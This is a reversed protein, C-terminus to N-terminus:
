ADGIPTGGQLQAALRTFEDNSRLRDEVSRALADEILPQRPDTSPELRMRLELGCARVLRYLTSLSPVARAREYRAIASQSTGSRRALEAQSLGARRRAEAVIAWAPVRWPETGM